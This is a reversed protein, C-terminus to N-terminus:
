LLLKQSLICYANWDIRELADIALLLDKGAVIIGHKPMILAAAHKRIREEKGQFGAVINKAIEASHAPAEPVCEIIGFKQTGELVPPIPKNAACFPLVHFPHAHIVAGADPFNHYIGLHAKGERSFLPNNLLEDNDLRGCLIDAPELQWHKQGGSFRPTIYVLGESCVSINGGSFDTLRREFMERGVKIIQEPITPM